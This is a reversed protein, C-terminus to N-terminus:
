QVRCVYVPVGYHDSFDKSWEVKPYKLAHEESCLFVPRGGVIGIPHESLQELEPLPRRLDAQLWGFSAEPVKALLTKQEKGDSLKARVAYRGFTFAGSVAIYM